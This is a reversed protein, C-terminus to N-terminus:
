HNNKKGLVTKSPPGGSTGQPWEAPDAYQGDDQFHKQLRRLEAKM